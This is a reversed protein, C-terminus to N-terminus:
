QLVFFLLEAINEIGNVNFPENKKTKLYWIFNVHTNLIYRTSLSMIDRYQKDVEIFTAGKWNLLENEECLVRKKEEYVIVPYM